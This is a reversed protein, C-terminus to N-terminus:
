PRWVMEETICTSYSRQAAEGRDRALRALTFVGAVSSLSHGGGKQGCSFRRVIGHPAKEYGSGSRPTFYVASGTGAGCGDPLSWISYFMRYPDQKM